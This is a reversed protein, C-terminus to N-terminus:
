ESDGQQWPAAAAAAAVRQWGAAHHGVRVPFTNKVPGVPTQISLWDAAEAGDLELRYYRTTNTLETGGAGALLALATARDCGEVVSSFPRSRRMKHVTKKIERVASKGLAVLRAARATGNM